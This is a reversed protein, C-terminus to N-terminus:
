EVERYDFIIEPYVKGKQKKIKLCVQAWDLCLINVKKGNVVFYGDVVGKDGLILEAEYDSSMKFRCPSVRCVGEKEPSYYYVHCANGECKYEWGFCISAAENSYCEVQSYGKFFLGLIALFILASRFM